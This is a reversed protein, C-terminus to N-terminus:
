APLPGVRRTPNNNDEVNKKLAIGQQPQIQPPIPRFCGEAENTQSIIEVTSEAKAQTKPRGDEVIQATLQLRHKLINAIKVDPGVWVTVTKSQWPALKFTEADVVFPVNESSDISVSVTNETNSKNTVLFRAQYHEDAIIYQPTELLKVELKSYPLVLVNVTYFDRISPYKRMKVLYTIKYRGAPTAEPVIFSVLKTTSENGGLDFPFDKTILVWGEPLEVESTFEHQQSTTNTVRFTVAVIGRPRTEFLEKGAPRVELGLGQATDYAVALTVLYFVISLFTRRM